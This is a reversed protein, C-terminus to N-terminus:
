GDTLFDKHWIPRQRAWRRTKVPKGLALNEEGKFIFFESLSYSFKGDKIDDSFELPIFRIRQASLGPCDIIIPGMDGQPSSARSDYIVAGEADETSLYGKILYNKPFLYSSIIENNEQLFVPTIILSDIEELAQLDVEIWSQEPAQNKWHVRFGLTGGSERIHPVPLKELREKTAHTERELDTLSFSAYNPEASLVSLLASVIFVRSKHM